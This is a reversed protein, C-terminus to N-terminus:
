VARCSSVAKQQVAVILRRCQGGLFLRRSRIVVRVNCVSVGLALSGGGRHVQTTPTPLPPHLSRCACDHPM